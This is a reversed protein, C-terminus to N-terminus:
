FRNEIRMTPQIEVHIDDLEEQVYKANESVQVVISKEVWYSRGFTSKQDATESM